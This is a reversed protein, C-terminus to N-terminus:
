QGWCLQVVTQSLCYSNVFSVLLSRLANFKQCVKQNVRRRGVHRKNRRDLNDCREPSLFRFISCLNICTFHLDIINRNENKRIKMRKSTTWHLHASDAFTDTPGRGIEDHKQNKKGEGIATSRLRCLFPLSDRSLFAFIHFIPGNAMTLLHAMLGLYRYRSGWNGALGFSYLWLIGNAREYDDITWNGRLAIENHIERPPQVIAVCASQIIKTASTMLDRKWNLRVPAVAERMCKKCREIANWGDANCSFCM